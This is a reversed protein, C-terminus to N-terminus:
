RSMSQMETDREHKNFETAFQAASVTKGPWKRAIAAKLAKSFNELLDNRNISKAIDRKFAQDM